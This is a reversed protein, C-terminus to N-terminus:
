VTFTTTDKHTKMAGEINIVMSLLQISGTIWGSGSIKSIDWGSLPRGIGSFLFVIM